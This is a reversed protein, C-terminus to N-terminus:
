GLLVEGTPHELCYDNIEDAVDKLNYRGLYDSLIKLAHISSNSLSEENDMITLVCSVAEAAMAKFSQRETEYIAAKTESLLNECENNDLLFAGETDSAGYPLIFLQKM